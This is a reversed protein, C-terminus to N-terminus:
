ISITYFPYDFMCAIYAIDLIGIAIKIDYLEELISFYLTEHELHFKKM